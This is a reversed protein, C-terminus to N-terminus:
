SGGTVRWVTFYNGSTTNIPPLHGVVKYDGYKVIDAEIMYDNGPEDPEGNSQFNLIILTFVRRKIADAFAPGNLLFQGTEPDVYSYSGVEKWQLSSVDKVYYAPIDDFGSILYRDAGPRVYQKLASVFAPNTSPWSYLGQATVANAAAVPALLVIACVGVLVRFRLIRTLAYGALICGFWAGFIVHKQLSVSTGIRAQNLPAAIVAFLLVLGFVGLACARAHSFGSRRGVVVLLLAGIVALVIVPGIWTWADHLVLRAPQGMGVQTNSRAVTTSMIGKLYKGKGIALGVLLFMGVTVAFRLARGVGYRWPYGVMPPACCALAIVVPDWLATAYKDANALALVAAAIVTSGAIDTLTDYASKRGIVLYTALVLLFLSMADYTALAGLFQTGSIGAFLATAPLATWKGFLRLTTAYLLCTAGVMFALSLFRAAVLGGVSNVLAALPPYVAPSGSLFTQYDEIPTGHIWHNLDQSGVFLYTAEDIFATNSWILRMSLLVQIAVVVLLPWPVDRLRLSAARDAMSWHHGILFSVPTLVATVAVNAAIYNMGFHELGAYLAMGIGTSALQQVNFRILGSLLGFRRERWTVYRSLLFNVQVSLITQIVYSTVHSMRYEHILAYQVAVGFVFVFLGSAAFTILRKRAGWLAAIAGRRGQRLPVLATDLASQQVDAIYNLQRLAMM